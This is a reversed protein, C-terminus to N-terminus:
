RGCAQRAEEHVVGGKSHNKQSNEMRLKSEECEIFREVQAKELPNSHWSLRSEVGALATLILVALVTVLIYFIREFLQRFEGTRQWALWVTDLDPCLMPPLENRLEPGLYGDLREWRLYERGLYLYSLLLWVVTGWLLGRPSALPLAISAVLVAFGCLIPSIIAILLWYALSRNQDTLIRAMILRAMAVQRNWPSSILLLQRDAQKWPWLLRRVLLWTIAANSRKVGEIVATDHYREMWDHEHEPADPSVALQMVDPMCFVHLFCPLALLAMAFLAAFGLFSYDIPVGILTAGGLLMLWGIAFASYRIADRGQRYFLRILGRSRVLVARLPSLLVSSWGAREGIGRGFGFPRVLLRGARWVLWLPTDLWETETASVWSRVIWWSRATRRVGVALMVSVWLYFPALVCLAIGIVFLAWDVFWPQLASCWWSWIAELSTPASWLGPWFTAPLGITVGREVVFATPIATAMVTLQPIQRSPVLFYRYHYSHPVRGQDTQTVFQTAISFREAGLARLWPSVRLLGQDRVDHTGDSVSM